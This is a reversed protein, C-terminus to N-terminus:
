RKPTDRIPCKEKIYAYCRPFAQDLKQSDEGLSLPAAYRYAFLDALLQNCGKQNSEQYKEYRKLRDAKLVDFDRAYKLKFPVQNSLNGCCDDYAHGFEHLILGLNESISNSPNISDEGIVVTKTRAIYEGAVKELHAGRDSGVTEGATLEYDKVSPSVVVSVGRSLFTQIMEDPLWALASLVLSKSSEASSTRHHFRFQIQSIQSQNLRVPNSPKKTPENKAAKIKPALSYEQIAQKWNRLSLYCDGRYEHVNSYSPAILLANGYEKLADSFHKQKELIIGLAARRTPSVPDAIVAQKNKELALDINHLSIYCSGAFSYADALTPDLRSAQNFFWVANKDKGQDRAIHGLALNNQASDEPSKEQIRTIERRAVGFRKKKLFETCKLLHLLTDNPKVAEAKAYQEFEEKERHLHSFCHARWLCCDFAFQSKAQMRNLQALAEENKLQNILLLARVFPDDLKVCMQNSLKLAEAPTRGVELM